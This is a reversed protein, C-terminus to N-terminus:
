PTPVQGEKVVLYGRNEVRDLTRMAAFLTAAPVWVWPYRAANVDMVLFSDSVRDYAALPSLHGGGEQGVTTRQYNVVVFDGSRALNEALDERMADDTLGADAIRVEVKAGWTELMEGLQRLQLGPDPKEGETRAKGYFEAESKVKQAAESFFTTQTYRALTPDFRTPILPRYTDPVHSMDKPKAHTTDGLRLANLVIVGSTPGCLGGHEQAEFQNALAFFDARAEARALREISGPDTFPVLPAAAFAVLALLLPVM